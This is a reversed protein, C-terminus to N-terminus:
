NCGCDEVERTRGKKDTTRIRLGKSNYENVYIRKGRRYQVVKVVRNMSDSYHWQGHRKGNLYKAKVTFEGETYSCKVKRQSTSDCQALLFSSHFVLLFFALYYKHM